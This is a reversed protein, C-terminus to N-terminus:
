PVMGTMIHKLNAKKIADKRPCLWWARWTPLLSSSFKRVPQCHHWLSQPSNHSRLFRSTRWWKVIISHCARAGSRWLTYDDYVLWVVENLHRTLLSRDWYPLEHRSRIPTKRARVHTLGAVSLSGPVNSAFFQRSRGITCAFSSSSRIAALKSINMIVAVPTASIARSEAAFLM